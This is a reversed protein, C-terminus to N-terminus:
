CALGPIVLALLAALVGAFLAQLSKGLFYLRPSLGSGQLLSLTQGHVSLGGWGCLFSALVFSPRGPPLGHIGGTLELLGTLLQVLLPKGFSLLALLGTAAALRLLVQFFLVFACIQLMAQSSSLVAQTFAQSFDVAGLPPAARRGEARRRLLLGVLLASLVHLLYLLIGARSSGFVGLGVVGVFFAPGSNNCFALLRQAEQRACQGSQYLQLVARAGVPYGGVLGLLLAASGSASIRLLRGTLPHFLRGLWAAFGLQILLSSVVLFPFLSPLLTGGCLQLGERVAAMCDQPFALLGAATLATLLFALIRM